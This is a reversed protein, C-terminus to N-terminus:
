IMVIAGPDHFEMVAMLHAFRKTRAFEHNHPERRKARMKKQPRRHVQDCVAGDLQAREIRAEFIDDHAARTHSPVPRIAKLSHLRQDGFANCLHRLWVANRARPLPKLGRVASYGHGRKRRFDIAAM